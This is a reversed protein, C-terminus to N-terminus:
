ILGTYSYNGLNMFYFRIKFILAFKASEGAWREVFPKFRNSFGSWKYLSPQCDPSQRARVMPTM